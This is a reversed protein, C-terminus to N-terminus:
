ASTINQHEKLGYFSLLTRLLAYKPPRTYVGGRGKFTFSKISINLTIQKALIQVSKFIYM